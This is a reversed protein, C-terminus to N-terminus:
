EAAAFVADANHQDIEILNGGAKINVPLHWVFIEDDAKGIGFLYYNGAKVSKVKAQGRLNTKLTLLQHKSIEKRILLAVIESEEDESAFAKATATLYDEDQLSSQKKDEFELKFNSDRLINVLSKNFLYFDTEAIPSSEEDHDGYYLNAQITFTTKLQSLPKIDDTIRLYAGLANAQAILLFLCCNAFLPKM